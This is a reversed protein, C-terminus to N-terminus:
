WRLLRPGLLWGVLAAAIVGLSYWTMVFVPATEPCHLCYLAAGWGGAAIGAWAGSLRLRTPALRRCAWMLGAYIPLALLFVNRSCVTWSQGLWLALWAARPAMALEGLSVLALAAVPLWILMAWRGPTGDPRALRLTAATACLGLAVTYIAKTWLATGHLATWLDSRIGLVTAVLALTVLMGGALGLGVQRGLAHRPVVPVDRALAAILDQSNM